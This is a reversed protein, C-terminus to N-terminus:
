EEYRRRLELAKKRCRLMRVRVTGEAVDLRQGMERYSLGEELFRWLERCSEPTEELVRLLLSAAERSELRDQISPDPDELNMDEVDVWTRRTHARVRDICKYHAFRRVYTQLSSDGRFKGERLSLTLALLIEQELDELDPGFKARYTSATWQIWERIAAITKPDGNLFLLVSPEPM